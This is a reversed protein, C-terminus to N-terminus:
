QKCSLLEGRVKDVFYHYQDIFSRYNVWAGDDDNPFGHFVLVGNRQEEYTIENLSRGRGDCARSKSLTTGRWMNAAATCMSVGVMRTDLDADPLDIGLAKLCPKIADGYAAIQGRDSGDASGTINAQSYQYAGCARYYELGTRDHIDINECGNRTVLQKPDSSIPVGESALGTSEKALVGILVEAPICTTDSVQLALKIAGSTIVAEQGSGGPGGTPSCATSAESDSQTWNGKDVNPRFNKCSIEAKTPECTAKVVAGKGTFCVSSGQTLIKEFGQYPAYQTNTPPQVAHCVLEWLGRALRGGPTLPNIDFTSTDASEIRGKLKVEPPTANTQYGIIQGEVENSSMHVTKGARGFKPATDSMQLYKYAPKGGDTANPQAKLTFNLSDAYGPPFLASALVKEYEFVNKYEQPLLLYTRLSVKKGISGMAKLTARAPMSIERVPDLTGDPNITQKRTDAKEGVADTEFCDMNEDGLDGARIAEANIRKVLISIFSEQDCEPCSLFKDLYPDPNTMNSASSKSFIEDAQAKIKEKIQNTTEQPTLAYMTSMFGGTFNASISKDVLPPSDTTSEAFGAPVYVKTVKVRNSLKEEQTSGQPSLWNEIKDFVTPDEAPQDVYHVIYAPKFAKPTTTEIQSLKNRFDQYSKATNTDLTSPDQDCSFGSPQSKLIDLYSDSSQPLTLDLACKLPPAGPTTPPAQPEALEKNNIAVTAPTENDCLNKIAKLYDLTTQCSAKTSMLNTSTGNGVFNTFADVGGQYKASFFGEWDDLRRDSTTTNPVSANQFRFLPITTQEHNVYAFGSVNPILCSSPGSCDLPIPIFNDSPINIKDANYIHGIFTLRPACTLMYESARKLQEPSTKEEEIGPYIYISKNVTKTQSVTASCADRYFTDYIPQKPEGSRNTIGFSTGAAEMNDSWAFWIAVPVKTGYNTNLDEYMGKMFDASAQGNDTNGTSFETIWFPKGFGTVTNLYNHFESSNPQKGYPHGSIADALSVAAQMQRVYDAIQGEGGVFGGLVAKAGARHIAPIAASGVKGLQIPDLHAFQTGVGDPENWIEYAAVKPGYHSAIEGVKAGFSQAYQDFNGGDWSNTGDGWYTEHNVVMLVKVGAANLSNVVPDYAAYGGTSKFVLRAWGIGKMKDGGPFGASNAPDINIGCRKDSSTSTTPATPTTPAGPAPPQSSTPPAGPEAPPPAPIGTKPLCTCFNTATDTIYCVGDGGDMANNKCDAGEQAGKCTVNATSSGCAAAYARSSFLTFAVSFSFVIIFWRCWRM